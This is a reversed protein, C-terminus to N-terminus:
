MFRRNITTYICSFIWCASQWECESLHQMLPQFLLWMRIWFQQWAMVLDTAMGVGSRITVSGGLFKISQRFYYCIRWYDVMWIGLHSVLWSGVEVVQPTVWVLCLRAQLLLEM